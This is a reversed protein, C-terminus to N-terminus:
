GHGKHHGHHRRPHRHKPCKARVVPRTDHTKGNQADLKVNARRGSCFGDSMEVLGRKGGFLELRFKSVPADPVAEFTNRLAGKIADTKGVLDIEIPQTAPGKLKAVLDPLNHSSSRLYVLGTLPQDLLPTTARVKGYVSGAPCTDAAFQVRTCVTRIHSQDLFVAHPLKVQARAINADGPRATLSAILRPNSSRKVSGRLRLSLTPKFRLAGCSGVQFRQSLPAQSGLASTAVGTIAMPDCSTPNLTFDSRDMKLAVSRVDLPIGDLITPLPDSVAHIQATEPEVYLAVRTVVTGLDFPGAIAPTIVALSVPAGKYPGALYASGRTYFPTPGAGAGVVVTGVQSSGPCSPSEREIRGEEPRSRGQAQAIQAESCQPIGALKGILGPPLTTDIGTLRQSGDERSIKLVFPSYAGARPELTGAAFAPAHTVAAESTPCAGGSPQGSLQFSSQPHADAGEPSSWPTLTSVATHVGCTPPTILAGRAGGFLHLRVDELPLQPNEEFVTTLQGTAPDPEVRGALKAYTGSEPDEVTLYIALLSDFPNSFPEALYVSGHLPRPIPDGTEPDTVLKTGEESYQGILPTTVEVTGLKSADPCAAPEASFHSPSVGAATLAGVQQLSCAALGDAQSPNVSMGPPLTVRADKLPSPSRHDLQMDQPQHLSVDLGSPSDSLNTTPAVGLTPQFGLQDCGTVSVPNGALDASDYATEREPFQPAPEEWSDAFARYRLPNGSCSGPMLLFADSRPEAPAGRIAEHATASPEGWLETSVDLVPSLGRALIDRSIATAGYDSETRVRAVIHPFIGVGLANFGLVAPTGATPVMNYLLVTDPKVSHGTVTKITVTGVASDAPCGPVESTLQEETCRVPTASPNALLGPPLDVRVDRPHGASIFFGGGEISPFGLNVVNGYPHGGAATFPTGDADILPAALGAEGSLFDFPPIANGLTTQTQAAAPAAGGGSVGAENLHPGPGPSASVTVPVEMRLWYGPSIPGEGTCTVTQGATLCDFPGVGPAVTFVNPGIPNFDVSVDAPLTDTLTIEGEATESGVNTAVLFYVGSDSGPVLNTPQATANLRWVPKEAAAAAGAPGAAALCLVALAMATALKKSAIM